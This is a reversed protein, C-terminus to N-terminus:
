QNQVSVYDFINRKSLDINSFKTSGYSTVLVGLNNGATESNKVVLNTAKNDTAVKVAINSDVVETRNIIVTDSNYIHVGVNANGLVTDIIKVKDSEHVFIQTGDIQSDSLDLDKIVVKELGKLNFGHASGDFNSNHKGLIRVIKAQVNLATIKSDSFDSNIFRSNYECNPAYVRAGYNNSSLDSNSVRLRDCDANDESYYDVGMNMDRATVKNLILKKVNYGEVGKATEAGEITVNKVKIINGRAFIGVATNPTIIKHGGGKLVANESLTLASYGEYGSCDLDETMKVASTLTEGCTLAMASTSLLSLGALVLSTTLKM